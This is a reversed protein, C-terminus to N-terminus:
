FKRFTRYFVIANNLVPVNETLKMKEMQSYVM